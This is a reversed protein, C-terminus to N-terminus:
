QCNVAALAPIWITGNAARSFNYGSAYRLRFTIKCTARSIALHGFRQLSRRNGGAGTAETVGRREGQWRQLYSEHTTTTFSKPDWIRWRQPMGLAGQVQETTQGLEVTAPGASAANAAWRWGTGSRRNRGEGSSRSAPGSGSRRRRRQGGAPRPLPMPPRPRIARLQRRLRRCGM